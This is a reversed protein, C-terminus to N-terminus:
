SRHKISSVSSDPSWVLAPNVAKQPNARAPLTRAKIQTSGTVENLALLLLLLLLLLVM